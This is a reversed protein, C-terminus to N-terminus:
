SKKAETNEKPKNRFFRKIWPFFHKIQEKELFYSPSFKLIRFINLHYTTIM